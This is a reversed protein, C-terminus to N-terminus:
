DRTALIHERRQCRQRDRVNEKATIAEVEDPPKVTISAIIELAPSSIVRSGHFRPVHTANKTSSGGGDSVFCMMRRMRFGVSGHM